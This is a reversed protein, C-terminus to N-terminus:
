SLGAIYARLAAGSAGHAVIALHKVSHPGIRTAGAGNCLGCDACQARNGGERSAPCTVAGRIANPKATVVFGRWGRGDARALEREGLCSAMLLDRWPSSPRTRWTETYGAMRVHRLVSALSLLDQVVDPIQPLKGLDGWVGLRVLTPTADRELWRQARALFGAPDPATGACYRALFGVGAAGVTKQSVYCKGIRQVGAAHAAADLATALAKPQTAPSPALPCGGCSAVSSRMVVDVARLAGWRAAAGRKGNWSAVTDQSPIPMAYLGLTRGTKTNGKKAESFSAYVALGLAHDIYIIEPKM